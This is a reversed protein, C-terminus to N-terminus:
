AFWRRVRRILNNIQDEYRGWIMIPFIFPGVILAGDFADVSIERRNATGIRLALWASAFWVAILGVLIVLITM